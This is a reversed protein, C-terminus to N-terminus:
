RAWSSIGKFRGENVQHQFLLGAEKAKGTLAGKVSSAGGESYFLGNSGIVGDVDLTTSGVQPHSLDLQTSFAKKAFDLELTGRKLAGQTPQEGAAAHANFFYVFSRMLSFNVVGQTPMVDFSTPAERFLGFRGDGITIERGNSAQKYPMSLTDGPLRSPWWNAWAINGSLKLSKVGEGISEGLQKREVLQEGAPADTSNLPAQEPVISLDNIEIAHSFSKLKVQKEGLQYTLVMDGMEKTLQEAGHCVGLGNALCNKSFPSVAIGGSYVAAWMHSDDVKVVYDTGLVGLAAVPTNLRYRDHAAKTAKGSISRVVGTILNFRIANKKPETLNYHYAEIRLRSNPRVSVVAEDIFRIHVHGGADTQVLDGVYIFDDRKLSSEVGNLHIVSTNGILLTVEGIATNKESALAAGSLEVLLLVVVLCCQIGHM